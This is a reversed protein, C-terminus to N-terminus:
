HNGVEPVEYLSKMIKVISGNEVELMSALEYPAKIYFDRNLRINFQVYAQIVDRFYLKISFVIAALCLILRQSVRQITPSQTLVFHKISDNYTQMVLRSKEFASETDANKIEDVFRSNFIRMSESVEEKSVFIFVGKEILGIVEKKRSKVYSHHNLASKNANSFFYIDSTFIFNEGSAQKRSRRRGRKIPQIASDDSFFSHNEANAEPSFFHEPNEDNAESSIFHEFFDFVDSIRSNEGNFSNDEYYPKM